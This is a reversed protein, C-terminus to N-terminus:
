RAACAEVHHAPYQSTWWAEDFSWGRDGQYDAIGLFAPLSGLAETILDSNLAPAGLKGLLRNLPQMPVWVTAQAGATAPRYVIAPQTPRVPDCDARKVALKGDDYLRRVLRLFAAHRPQGDTLLISQARCVAAPNGQCRGFWRSMDQLLDVLRIQTEM